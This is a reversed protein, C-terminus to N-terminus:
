AVSAAVPAPNFMEVTARLLGFRSLTLKGIRRDAYEVIWVM